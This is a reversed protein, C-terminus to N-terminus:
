RSISGIENEGKIKGMSLRRSIRVLDIETLSLEIARTLTRKGKLPFKAISVPSEVNRIRKGNAKVPTTTLSSIKNNNTEPVITPPQNQNSAM